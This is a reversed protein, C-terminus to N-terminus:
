KAFGKEQMKIFLDTRKGNYELMRATADATNREVYSLFQAQVYFAVAQATEEDFPVHECDRYDLKLGDWWLSFVWPGEVKPFLYFQDHKPSIAMVGVHQRGNACLLNLTEAAALAGVSAATLVIYNSNLTDQYERTTMHFRDEWDTQVVDFRLNRDTNFYYAGTIRSQPPLAGVQARGDEAFDENFYVTERNKRFEPIFNQLDLIAQRIQKRYYVSSGDPNMQGFVRKCELPCLEDVHANFEAWTWDRQEPAADGM